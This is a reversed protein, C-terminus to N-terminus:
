EGLSVILDSGFKLGAVEAALKIIDRISTVSYNVGVWQGSKLRCSHDNCLDPRDPYLEEKTEAMYRRKRGHKRAMFRNPFSLDRNTLEEFVGVLVDRAASSNIPFEQGKISFGYHRDSRRLRAQSDNTKEKRNARDERGQYEPKLPHLQELLFEGVLDPNPKHGCLDETTEAVLDVLSGDQEKLLKTWAQPITDKMTGINYADKYDSKAANIAEEERVRKFCLYRRLRECGDKIERELLDLKYACREDHNGREAPLYFLWEQGDTLVAMPIGEDYAYQFLQEDGGEKQGVKKVEVFIAPKRAPHCLAFDVRRGRISYEPWIIQPDFVKWGLTQLVPLLVGTSVSAENVFCGAKLKERIEKILNELQM